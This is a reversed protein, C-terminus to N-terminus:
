RRHPGLCMMEAPHSTGRPVGTSFMFASRSYALESPGTLAPCYGLLARDFRLNVTPRGANTAENGVIFAAAKKEASPAAKLRRAIEHLRFGQRRLGVIDAM